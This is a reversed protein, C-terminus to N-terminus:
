WAENHQTSTDSVLERLQGTTMGHRMKSHVTDSVLECLQGTTIGHRM